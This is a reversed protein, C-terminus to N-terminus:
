VRELVTKFDPTCYAVEAEQATAVKQASGTANAELRRGASKVSNGILVLVVALAACSVIAGHLLGPGSKAPEFGPPEGFHAHAPDEDSDRVDNLLQRFPNNM